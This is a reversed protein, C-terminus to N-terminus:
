LKTYVKALKTTSTLNSRLDWSKRNLYDGRWIKSNTLNKDAGRRKIRLRMLLRGGRTVPGRPPV